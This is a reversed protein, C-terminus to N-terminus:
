KYHTIKLVENSRRRLEIYVTGGDAGEHLTGEIVWLSDGVLKAKLPLESKIVDGYEKFAIEEGIVLIKEREIDEKTKDTDKAHNREASNNCNFFCFASFIIIFLPHFIIKM